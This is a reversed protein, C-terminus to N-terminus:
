QIKKGDVIGPRGAKTINTHLTVKKLLPAANRFHNDGIMELNPFLADLVSACPMLIDGDYVPPLFPPFVWQTQGKVNTVSVWCRGPSHLKHSWRSKDKHVSHKGKVWFDMSDVWLVVGELGEPRNSRTAM